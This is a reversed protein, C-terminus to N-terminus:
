TGTEMSRSGPWGDRLKMEMRPITSEAALRWPPALLAAHQPQYDKACQSARRISTMQNRRGPHLSPPSHDAIILKTVDAIVQM